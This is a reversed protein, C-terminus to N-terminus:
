ANPHCYWLQRSQIEKRIISVAKRERPMYRFAASQVRHCMNTEKSIKLRDILDLKIYVCASMSYYLSLSLEIGTMEPFISRKHDFNSFKRRLYM